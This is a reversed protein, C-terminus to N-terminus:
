HPLIFKWLDLHLHFHNIVLLGVSLTVIFMKIFQIIKSIMSFQGILQTIYNISINMILLISFIPWSKTLLGFFIWLFTFLTSTNYTFFMDFEKDKFESKLPQKSTVKNFTFVWEKIKLFKFYRTIILIDILYIFLGIFYFLHGLM